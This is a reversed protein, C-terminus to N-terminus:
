LFTSTAVLGKMLFDAKGTAVAAVAAKSAEAMDAIDTVEWGELDVRAKKAAEEIAKRDGFLVPTAIREKHAIALAELVVEDQAVAVAVRKPGKAKAEKMLDSFSKIM